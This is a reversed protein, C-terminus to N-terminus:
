NFTQVNGIRGASSLPQPSPNVLSTAPEVADDPNPENQIIANEPIASSVEHRCPSTASAESPKAENECNTRDSVVDDDGNVDASDNEADDSREGSATEGETAGADDDDADDTESSPNLLRGYEEEPVFPCREGPRPNTATKESRFKRLEALCRHVTRELQQEYRALREFEDPRTTASDRPEPMRHVLTAAAPLVKPHAIYKMADMDWDMPREHLNDLGAERKSTFPEARSAHLCAEAGQVRQLKWMAIVIREVLFLELVDRPCLRILLAARLSDFQQQCEGALVTDGCFVGHKLANQRSRAKGHVTRPGTSRLANRRNSERKKQSCM